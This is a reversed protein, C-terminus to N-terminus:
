LYSSEPLSSSFSTFPYLCLVICDCDGTFVHILTYRIFKFIDSTFVICMQNMFVEIVQVHACVSICIVSCM